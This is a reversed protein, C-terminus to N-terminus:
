ASVALLERARQTDQRDHAEKFERILDAKYRERALEVRDSLEAVGPYEPYMRQLRAAEQRALAWQAQECIQDIKKIAEAIMTERKNAQSELIQQRFQEADEHLGYLDAMDNVMALAEDYAELRIDEVIAERVAQRDQQRSAIRKAQDSLLLRENMTELLGTQKEILAATSSPGQSMLSLFASVPVSIALVGLGIVVPESKVLGLILVAIGAVVLIVFVANPLASAGSGSDRHGSNDQM